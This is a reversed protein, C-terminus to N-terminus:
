TARPTNPFEMNMVHEAFWQVPDRCEFPLTFYFTNTAACFRIHVKLSSAGESEVGLVDDRLFLAYQFRRWNRDSPQKMAVETAYEFPDCHEPAAVMAGSWSPYVPMAGSIPLGSAANMLTNQNLAHARALSNAVMAGIPMNSM